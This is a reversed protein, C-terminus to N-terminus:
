PTREERDGSRRVYFGLDNSAQKYEEESVRGLMHPDPFTAQGLVRALVGRLTTGDDSSGLIGCEM